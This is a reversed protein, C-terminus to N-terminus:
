VTTVTLPQRLPGGAGGVVVPAGGFTVGGPPEVGPPVVTTEGWVTVRGGVANAGLATTAEGRNVPKGTQEARASQAPGPKLRPGSM